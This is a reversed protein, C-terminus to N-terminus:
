PRTAPDIEQWTPVEFGPNHLFRRILDAVVNPREYPLFHRAGHIVILHAHPLQEVLKFGTSLPLQEDREGWLILCPVTNRAYDADIREIAPWDLQARRHPVSQRLMAQAARLQAPDRLAHLFLEFNERPMDTKSSGLAQFVRWDLVGLADALEIKFPTLDLLEYFLPDPSLVGADPPAVLVAGDFRAALDPLEGRVKGDCLMRLAVAGGLSHGVLTVRTDAPYDALIKQLAQLVCRALNDPRYFSDGVDTPDPKDSAGCGPLDLLLLQQDAGLDGAVFRWMNQDSLLGHILVLLHHRDGRGLETAALSLPRHGGPAAIPVMSTRKPLARYARIPQALNAFQDEHPLGPAVACGALLTALGLTRVLTQIGM